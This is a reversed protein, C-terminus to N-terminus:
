FLQRKRNQTSSGFTRTSLTPTCSTLWRSLLAAPELAGLGSTRPSDLSREGQRRSVKTVQTCKRLRLHAHCHPVTSAPVGPIKYSTSQHEENSPAPQATLLMDQQCSSLPQEGLQGSAKRSARASWGQAQSLASALAAIAQDLELQFGLATASPSCGPPPQQCERQSAATHGDWPEQSQGTDARATAKPDTEPDGGRGLAQLETRSLGASLGPFVLTVRKDTPM